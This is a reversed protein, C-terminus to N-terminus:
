APRAGDPLTREAVALWEVPTPDVVERDCLVFEVATDEDMEGHAPVGMRSRIAHNAGRDEARVPAGLHAVYITAEEVELGQPEVPALPAGNAALGPVPEPAR